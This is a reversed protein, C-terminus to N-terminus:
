DFDLVIARIGAQPYLRCAVVMSENLGDYNQQSEKLFDTITRDNAYFGTGLNTDTVSPRSGIQGALVGGVHKDNDQRMVFCFTRTSPSSDRDEYFMHIEMDANNGSNTNDDTHSVPCAVWFFIGSGLPNSNFVGQRTWQMNFDLAQQLFIPQCAAGHIGSYEIDQVANATGMNLAFLVASVRFINKILKKM